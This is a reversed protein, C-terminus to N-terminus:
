SFRLSKLERNHNCHDHVLSEDHSWPVKFIWCGTPRYFVLGTGSAGDTPSLPSIHQLVIVCTRPAMQQWIFTPPVTRNRRECRDGTPNDLLQAQAARCSNYIDHTEPIIGLQKSWDQFVQILKSRLWGGGATSHRLAETLMRPVGSKGPLPCLHLLHVM